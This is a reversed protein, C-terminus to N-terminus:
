WVGTTRCWMYRECELPVCELPVTGCTGGVSRHYPVVPVVWVGTTRYWMYRECELPVCELPVTGCTGGVIWHYPVVPVEWLRTTCVGTARYWLYRGCEQPVACYEWIETIYYM